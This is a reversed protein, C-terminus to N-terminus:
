YVELKKSAESGTALFRVLVRSQVSQDPLLAEVEEVVMRATVRSDAVFPEGATGEVLDLETGVTFASAATSSVSWFVVNPDAVIYPVKLNFSKDSDAKAVGAIVVADLNLIPARSLSSSSNFILVNGQSFASAPIGEREVAPGRAYWLGRPM